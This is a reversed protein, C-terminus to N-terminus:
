DQDEHALAQRSLLRLAEEEAIDEVDDASVLLMQTRPDSRTSIKGEKVWQEILCMPTHVEHAIEEVTCWREPPQETM